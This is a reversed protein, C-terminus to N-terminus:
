KETIRGKPNWPDGENKPYDFWIRASTVDCLHCFAALPNMVRFKSSYDRHEGEVYKLGNRQEPTLVLGYESMKKNRFTRAAGKTKLGEVYETEGRDNLRYKWPKELDHLFLVLLADSLSFNLPRLESLTRYLIIALNMTELVHDHYGGPWNQHNNSSGRVRRFIEKNDALIKKCARRNPMEIMETLDDISIYM